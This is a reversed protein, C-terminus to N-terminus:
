GLSSAPDKSREDQTDTAPELVIPADSVAVGTLKQGGSSTAHAASDHAASDHAASDHAASNHHPTKYRWTINLYHELMALLAKPKIPKALFDNCGAQMSKERDENFVSASTAIIVLKKLHDDTRLAQTMEFGDMVPMMLDTIVADLPREKALQLAEAGDQAESVQFGLPRLLTSLVARNLDNDDVLLLRPATGSIGVIRREPEPPATQSTNVVPLELEFYFTSGVGLSSSVQLSGGMLEILNHSIALGLGTGEAQRERDSVQQFPQFITQLADEAMGIGSDEIEFRVRSAAAPGVRFVIHGQDTFKVANGLLNILVQRILKPDGSVVQPLSALPTQTQFDYAEYIFDLGKQETRVRVMDSIRQLFGALEVDQTNVTLKGAEIAAMDLVDNILTLLHDGSQEIIDLGEHQEASVDDDLKLLQAYGLIATLPTRLEHSMRAIFSSKAQNASEAALKATNLAEGIRKREAIEEQLVTNGRLLRRNSAVLQETRKAVRQELTKTLSEVEAFAKAFRRLLVFAQACIFAFVGFPLLYGTYILQNNYLVDNIVTGVLVLSSLFFTVAGKRKHQVARTLVYLCCGSMLLTILQYSLLTHTFTQTATFLVITSYLLVLAQLARILWSPMEKPFLKELFMAFVAPLLYFSLYNIKVFFQWNLEPIVQHMFMNGSASALIRVAILFCIISFLISSSDDRRLIFFALHYFGMTLAGGLIFLRLALNARYSGVIQAETGLRILQGAGGRRHEFNSVQLVIELSTSNGELTVIQPLWEARTESPDRGVRGNSARIQGNVYLVYASDVEPLNFALQDVRQALQLQFRYTGYGDGGIPRGDVQFNNWPKPIDLYGDLRPQQPAVQPTPPPVESNTSNDALGHASTTAGTDQFGEGQLSEGQLNEVTDLSTESSPTIDTPDDIGLHESLGLSATAGPTLSQGVRSNHEAFNQPTLLQQWYFEAEGIISIVGNTDFDWNRLDMIGQELRPTPARWFGALLSVSVVALV